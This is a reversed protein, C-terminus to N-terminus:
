LLFCLFRLPFMFECFAVFSVFLALPSPCFRATLVVCFSGSERAVCILVSPAPAPVLHFIKLIRIPDFNLPHQKQHDSDERRQKQDKVRLVWARFDNQQQSNRNPAKTAEVVKGKVHDLM